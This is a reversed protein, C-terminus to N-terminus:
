LAWKIFSDVLTICLAAIFTTFFDRIKFDQVLKDTGWLLIANIVLKFLGFTIIIFPLSILILLWGFLFSIVSYVIAVIVATMFNKIRIGPLFNAVLFVAISLILINVLTSM